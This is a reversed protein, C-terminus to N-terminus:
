GGEAATLEALTMERPDVGTERAAVEAASFPGFEVTALCRGPRLVAPRIAVPPANTTFAVIVNLEQGLLGDCVNM